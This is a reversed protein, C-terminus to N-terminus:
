WWTAIVAGHDIVVLHGLAEWGPLGMAAGALHGAVGSLAGGAGCGGAMRAIRGEWPGGGGPRDGGS